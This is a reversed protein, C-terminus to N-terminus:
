TCEGRRAATLGSTRHVRPAPPLSHESAPIAESVHDQRTTTALPAPEGVQASTEWGHRRFSDLTMDDSFNLYRETIGIASHGLARQLARLDVGAQLANCAFSHRLVHPSVKQAVGAREAIARLRYQAARPRIPIAGAVAFQVDLIRRARETLPVERTVEGKGTVVLTGRQWRIAEPRLRCFESIRLGTDLLVVVLLRDVHDLCAGLLAGQVEPSLPQRRFGPRKRPRRAKRADAAPLDAGAPGKM